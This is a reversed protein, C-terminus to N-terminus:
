SGHFPCSNPNQTSPLSNSQNASSINPKGIYSDVTSITERISRLELLGDKM